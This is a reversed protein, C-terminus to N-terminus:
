CGQWSCCNTFQTLQKSVLRCAQCCADVLSMAQVLGETYCVWVMYQEQLM